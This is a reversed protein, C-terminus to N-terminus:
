PRFGAMRQLKYWPGTLPTFEGVPMGVGLRSV